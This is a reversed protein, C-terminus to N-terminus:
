KRRKAATGKPNFADIIERERVIAKGFARYDGRKLAKEGDSHAKDFKAKLKATTEPELLDSRLRARNERIVIPAKKSVRKAPKRKVNKAM